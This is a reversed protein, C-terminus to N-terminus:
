GSLPARPRIQPNPHSPSLLRPRVQVHRDVAACAALRKAEEAMTGAPRGRSFAATDGDRDRDRDGDRSRDRDRDTHRDRGRGRDRGPPRAALATSRLPGLRGPLRM